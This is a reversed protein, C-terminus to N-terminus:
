RRRARSAGSSPAPSPPLARTEVAPGLLAPPASQRVGEAECRRGQGGVGAGRDLDLSQGPAGVAPGPRYEVSRVRRIAAPSRTSSTPGLPEPLDVTSRATAPSRSVASAPSRVPVTSTSPTAGPPAAPDTPRTSWSGPEATTAEDTSRSTANPSSFRPIGRSAIDAGIAAASSSTPNLWRAPELGSVRDPPSCCRSASAPASAIDGRTSSSSSGVAISSGRLAAETRCTTPSTTRARPSVVTTTSCRNPGQSSRTSRTTTSPGSPSSRRRRAAAPRGPPAPRRARPSPSRPVRLLRVRHRHVDGLRERRREPRAVSGATTRPAPQRHPTGGLRRSPGGRAVVATASTSRSTQPPDVTARTPGLPDPLDVRSSASPPRIRGDAPVTSAPGRGTSLGPRARHPVAAVRDRGATM